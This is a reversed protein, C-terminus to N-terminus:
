QTTYRTFWRQLDAPEAFDLLDDALRDLMTVSLSRIRQEDEKSLVGLRRTLQRQVAAARGSLEGQLVGQQVGQQMGQQMGELLGAQRGREMARREMSSLYEMKHEEQYEDVRRDYELELEEPLLMVWDIFRYLSSIQQRKYGREFLRRTLGFKWDLRAYPDVVTARVGAHAMVVLAFPNTEEELAPLDAEYDLLKATSFRLVLETGLLEDRFEAPRWSPDGDALVGFTACRAGFRDRIRYHYVFMREPFGSAPQTQVEVHVLVWQEQGDKLHVKVLKDVVRRGLAADQTIKQLEKDLFEHGARWNIQAHASPFFFAMFEEFQLDLIDKWPSDYDQQDAM